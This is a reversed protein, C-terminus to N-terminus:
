VAMEMLGMIGIRLAPLPPPRGTGISDDSGHFGIGVPWGPADPLRHVLAVREQPQGATQPRIVSKGNGRSRRRLPTLQSVNMPLMPKRQWFHPLVDGSTPNWEWLSAGRANGVTVQYASVGAAHLRPRELAAHPSPLNAHRGTWSCCRPRPLTGGVSRAAKGSSEAPLKAMAKPLGLCSPDEIVLIRKSM